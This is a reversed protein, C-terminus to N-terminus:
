NFKTNRITTLIRKSLHPYKGRDLSYAKVGETSKNQEKYLGMTSHIPHLSIIIDPLYEKAKSQKLIALTDTIQKSSQFNTDFTIGERRASFQLAPKMKKELQRDAFIKIEPLAKWKDGDVGTWQLQAFCFQGRSPAALFRSFCLAVTPNESDKSVHAWVLAKSLEKNRGTRIPHYALPIREASLGIIQESYSDNFDTTIFLDPWPEANGSLVTNMTSISFYKIKVKSKIESEFDSKALSLVGEMCDEAWVHLYQSSTTSNEQPMKEWVVFMSALVFMSLLSLTIGTYKPTKFIKQFDQSM